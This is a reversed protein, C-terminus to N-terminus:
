KLERYRRQKFSLFEFDKDKYVFSIMIVLILSPVTIFMDAVNFVPFPQGFLRVIPVFIFDVVYDLRLRDIMNGIAGGAILTLLYHISNYKKEAPTKLLVFGIVAIFVIAIFVFFIKQNPLLGFAAGINELYKLEFVGEIIVYSPKGKLNIVALYKSYQDAFVVLALLILDTIIIKTKKSM